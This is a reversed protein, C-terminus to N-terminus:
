SKTRADVEINERGLDRSPLWVQQLGRPVPILPGYLFDIGSRSLLTDLKTCRTISQLFVEAGNVPHGMEKTIVERQSIESLQPLQQAWAPYRFM